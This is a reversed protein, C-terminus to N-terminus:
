GDAGTIGLEATVHDLRARLEDVERRLEDVEARLRATEGDSSTSAGAVRDPASASRIVPRAPDGVPGGTSGVHGTAAGASAPGPGGPRGSMAQDGAARDSIAQDGAARDSIAQDGAARDSIAQDEALGDTPPRTEGARDSFSRTEGDRDTPPRPETAAAPPHDDSPSLLEIWRDERQGAARGIRRVLPQDRSALSQLTAEVGQNDAFGHLRETRIRLENVTQPGRLMLVGLVSVEGNSLGLAEDFTQKHKDTRGGGRVTRALGKDRLSLMTQEIMPSTYDVVPDRNSKQNCASRLANTTLPYQDPTAREKEILSGLVRIEIDTLERDARHDM